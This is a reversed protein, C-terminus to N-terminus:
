EATGPTSTAPFFPLVKLLPRHVERHVKFPGSLLLHQRKRAEYCHKVTTLVVLTPKNTWPKATIIIIIDKAQATHGSPCCRHRSYLATHASYLLYRHKIKHPIAPVKCMHRIAKTKGIQKPV